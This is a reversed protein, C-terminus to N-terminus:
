RSPRPCKMAYPRVMQSTRSGTVLGLGAISGARASRKRLSAWRGILVFRAWPMENLWARSLKTPTARLPHTAGGEILQKPPEHGGLHLENQDAAQGDVSPPDHSPGSIQIDDGIRSGLIEATKGSEGGGSTSM